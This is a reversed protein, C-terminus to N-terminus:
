CEGHAYKPNKRPEFGRIFRDKHYFGLFLCLILTFRGGLGFSQGLIQKQIGEHCEMSHCTKSCATTM